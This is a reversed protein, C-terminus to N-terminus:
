TSVRVGPISPSSSASVRAFAAASLVGGPVVWSEQSHRAQRMVLTAASALDLAVRPHIAPRTLASLHYVGGLPAPM